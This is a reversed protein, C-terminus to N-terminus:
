GPQAKPPLLLAHRKTISAPLAQNISQILSRAASCQEPGFAGFQYGRNDREGTFSDGTIYARFFVIPHKAEFSPPDYWADFRGFGKAVGRWSRVAREVAKAQQRTLRVEAETSQFPESGKLSARTYRTVSSSLVDPWANPEPDRTLDVEPTENLHASLGVDYRIITGGSMTELTYHFGEFESEFPGGTLLWVGFAVPVEWPGSAGSQLLRIGVFAVILYVVLAIAVVWLAKRFCAAWRPRTNSATM